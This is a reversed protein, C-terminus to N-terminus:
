KEEFTTKRQSVVLRMSDKVSNSSKSEFDVIIELSKLKPDNSYDDVRFKTVTVNNPTIPDNNRVIRGGEITYTKDDVKLRAQNSGTFSINQGWRITNTFEIQLDNKAQQIEEIHKTKLDSRFLLAMLSSASLFILVTLTIGLLLEILTFGGSLRPFGKQNKM